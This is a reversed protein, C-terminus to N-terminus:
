HETGSTAKKIKAKLHKANTKTAKGANKANTKTASAAHKANTETADSAKAAAKGIDSKTDKLGEKTNDATRKGLVKANHKTTKAAKDISTGTQRGVKEATREKKVTDPQQARSSAPLAILALALTALEIGTTRKM